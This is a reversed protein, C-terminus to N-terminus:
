PRSRSPPTSWAIIKGDMHAGSATPGRAPSATQGRHRDVLRVDQDAIEALTPGTSTISLLRVAARHTVRAGALDGRAGAAGSM